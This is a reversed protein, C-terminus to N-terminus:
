QKTAAELAADILDGDEDLWRVAKADLLIFIGGGMDRLVSDVEVEPGDGPNAFGPADPDSVKPAPRAPRYSGIVKYDSENDDEDTLKIGVEM